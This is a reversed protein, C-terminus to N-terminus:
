EQNQNVSTPNIRVVVSMGSRIRADPKSPRAKVEFTRVDFGDDNNTPRWTAFDSLTSTAYVTFQKTYPKDASSLAPITGTFTQGIAFQNLYSETVNLVVWQDNTDVLTLLPVGQGIVEGTSVIVNDVIGAIPSRLNAEEKAVLAEDLKADVQAVQATAASKDETRAGELALDYQLRAAETQDQTALYQAYAEDRKQRAMLGEEYLRNVRQYTNEALDSAAKNAQWAAKAQAIEQPRAGNEAKDLQSQAIQKGARAQNIKANIEPSDMEVLQQGATVTDGETVMIQAIRGPVKAAISTQQMQMQGQLTIVEPESHANSKYLGYAITGLVILIFLALLGKKMRASKDTKSVNRNYAPTPQEPEIDSVDEVPDVSNQTDQSTVSETADASKNSDDSERPLETM